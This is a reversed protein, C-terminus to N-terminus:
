FVGGGNLFLSRKRKVEIHDSRGIGQLGEEAGTAEITHPRDIEIETEVESEIDKIRKELFRITEMQYLATSVLHTFDSM